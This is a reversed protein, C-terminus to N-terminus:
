ELLFANRSRRCTLNNVIPARFDMGSTYNLGNHRTKTMTIVLNGEDTMMADPTYWELDGKKITLLYFSPFLLFM